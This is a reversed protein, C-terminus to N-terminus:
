LHGGSEKLSVVSSFLKTGCICKSATVYIRVVRWAKRFSFALICYNQWCTQGVRKRVRVQEDKGLWDRGQMGKRQRKRHKLVCLEM